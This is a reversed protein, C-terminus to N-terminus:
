MDEEDDIVPELVESAGVVELFTGAKALTEQWEADPSSDAVIGAGVGYRVESGSRFEDIRGQEVSGVVAATRIAISFASSGCLSVFGVAGCYQGRAERELREIIQMARVKPAGTVSGGPFTAALLEGTTSDPRLQGSVTATAQLLSGAAHTEIDRPSEVNISGPVCVRGLDSRMLDVIMTLEAQEKESTTLAGAGGASATGKMPRTSVKGDRTVSLFLEPSTSVIAERKGARLPYELYAGYWPQARELLKAMFARSSGRFPAHLQHTLNVQYIDGDAIHGLAIKVGKTYRKQGTGSTVPGASFEGVGAADGAPADYTPWPMKAGAGELLTVDAPAQVHWWTGTKRDHVLATPCCLWVAKWDDGAKDGAATPEIVGGLEYRLSAIWGGVFPPRDDPEVGLDPVEIDSPRPGLSPALRPGGGHRGAAGGFVPVAAIPQAIISWRDKGGPGKGSSVVAALWRDRPWSALVQEVTATWPLREVRAVRKAPKQAMPAANEAAAVPAATETSSLVPDTQSVPQETLM